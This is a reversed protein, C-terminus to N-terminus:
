ASSTWSLRPKPIPMRTPSALSSCEGCWSAFVNLVVVTGQQGALDMPSGDLATLQFAPAPEGVQPATGPQGALAYALLALVLIAVAGAAIWAPSLRRRSEDGISTQSSEM